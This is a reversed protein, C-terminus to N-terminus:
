MKGTLCYRLIIIIQVSIIKCSNYFMPFENVMSNEYINYNIGCMRTGMSKKTEFALKASGPPARGQVEWLPHSRYYIVLILAM